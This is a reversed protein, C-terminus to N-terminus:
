RGRLITAVQTKGLPAGTRGKVGRLALASAIARQSLGDAALTKVLAIVEQEAPNPELLRGDAGLRFGYAVNGVRLGRARREALAIRIRHRHMVRAYAAALDLAQRTHGVAPAPRPLASGDATTVRAGEELAAREILWSVLEDRTFCEANAAVLLGAGRDRISAYAALLGPREAIPTEGLVAEDLEWGVVEVAHRKAWQTIFERQNETRLYAVARM